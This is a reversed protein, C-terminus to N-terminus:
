PAQPESDSVPAQPVPDTHSSSWATPPAFAAMLIVLLMVLVTSLRKMM